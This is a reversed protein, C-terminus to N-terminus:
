IPVGAAAPLQAAIGALSAQVRTFAQAPDAKANFRIVISCQGNASTTEIHAIDDVHALVARQIPIAIRSDVESASQSPFPVIVTYAPPEAAAVSNCAVCFAVVSLTLPFSLPM